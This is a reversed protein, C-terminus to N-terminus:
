MFNKTHYASLTAAQELGFGLNELRERRAQDMERHLEKVLYAGHRIQPISTGGGALVVLSEHVHPSLGSISALMRSRREVAVILSGRRQPERALQYRIHATGFAVHRAEDRGGRRQAGAYSDLHSPRREDANASDASFIPPRVRICSSARFCVLSCLVLTAHPGGSASRSSKVGRASARDLSNQTETPTAANVYDSRYQRHKVLTQARRSTRIGLAGTMLDAEPRNPFWQAKNRKGWSEFSSTM